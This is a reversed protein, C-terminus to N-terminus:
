AVVRVPDIDVTSILCDGCILPLGSIQQEGDVSSYDITANQSGCLKCLYFAFSPKEDFDSFPNEENKNYYATM